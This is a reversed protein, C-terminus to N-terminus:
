KEDPPDEIKFIKTVELRYSQLKKGQTLLLCNAYPEWDIKLHKGTRGDHQSAVAANLANITYLTNTQKKRHVRMTYMSTAGFATKPDPTNYTFIKKRPNDVQSLMFILNNSLPITEVIKQVQALLVSDDDEELFSALLVGQRYKNM